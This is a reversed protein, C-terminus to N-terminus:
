LSVRMRSMGHVLSKVAMVIVWRVAKQIRTLSTVRSNNNISTLNNSSSAAKSLIRDAIAIKLM